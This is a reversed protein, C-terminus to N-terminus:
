LSSSWRPLVGCVACRGMRRPPSQPGSGPGSGALREGCERTVGRPCVCAPWGAALLRSRIGLAPWPGQVERALPASDQLPLPHGLDCLENLPALLCPGWAQAPAVERAPVGVRRRHCAPGGGAELVAGILVRMRWAPVGSGGVAQPPPPSLARQGLDCPLRLPAGPVQLWAVSGTSSGAGPRRGPSPPSGPPLAQSDWQM